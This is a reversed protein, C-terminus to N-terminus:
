QNEGKLKMVLKWIADASNFNEPIIEEMGIEIGFNEELSSILDMVDLSELIEDDILKTEKSFDVGDKLNCLIEMLKEM